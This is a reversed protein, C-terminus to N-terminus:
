KIVQLKRAYAYFTSNKKVGLLHFADRFLTQGELVSQILARSFLKGARVGLARYYDGASDTRRALKKIRNLEQKYYDYFKAQNILEADYLRRIIVLTSVKFLKALRQIEDMPNSTLQYAQNIEKLPVLFEAAVANCWREVKQEPFQKIDMNSVGSEGLWLHALEHALTFMQAAKSDAGNIFILPSLNDAIVFGRFEDVNLKRRNNSGVVSNIMVLVGAKEVGIILQRLAEEWTSASKRESMSVSLINRMSDATDSINSKLTAAGVFDLTRTYNTKVYERYWNQRQQCLYITDILNPSPQDVGRGEMTRFDPIPLSESPPASLFLYGIPVHVTRSFKELQKLTPNASGSEWESLKPFYSKLDAAELGARKRAWQILAPNISIQDIKAM